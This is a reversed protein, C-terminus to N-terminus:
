PLARTERTPKPTESEFLSGSFNTERSAFGVRSVHASGQIRRAVQSSSIRRGSRAIVEMM